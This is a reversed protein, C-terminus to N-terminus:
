SPSLPLADQMHTRAEKPPTHVLSFQKSILGDYCLPLHYGPLCRKSSYLSLLTDSVSSSLISGSPTFLVNDYCQLLSLFLSINLAMCQLSYRHEPSKIKIPCHLDYGFAMCQLIEANDGEICLIRTWSLIYYGLIGQTLTSHQTTQEIGYKGKSEKEM